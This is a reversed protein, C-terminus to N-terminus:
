NMREVRVAPSKGLTLLFSGFAAKRIEVTWPGDGVNRLRTTDVQKWIQGNEMMFRAKGDAGTAIAKVGLTVREVVADKQAAQVESHKIVPATLPSPTAKASGFADAQQQPRPAPVLTVGVRSKRLEPVLADFCAHRQTVDDIDACIYVKHM